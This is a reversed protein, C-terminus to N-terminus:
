FDRAVRFGVTSGRHDPRERGRNASRLRRSDGSYSGGRSVREKGAIPGTPDTVQSSPYDGYWDQCWEKVNGHMDYLGWPNPKKEGVPHTKMGLLSAKSTMYWAYEKLKAEENGFYFRYERKARCAYEWEAETPLRYKKGGEEKNLKENLKEIFKQADIWSVGEVPCNDGCDKFNLEEPNSGMVDRWQKQTVETTQLYFPKSITVLHQNEDKFRGDERDPSGMKFSGAPIPMFSMDISNTFAKEATLDIDKVLERQQSVVIKGQYIRQDGKMVILVYNGNPLGEFRYLGRDSSKSTISKTYSSQKEDLLYLTVVADSVPNGDVTIKGSLLSSAHAISCNLAALSILAWVVFRKM